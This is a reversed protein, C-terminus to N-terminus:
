CVSLRVSPRVSLCVSLRVSMLRWLMIRGKPRIFVTCIYLSPKIHKEYATDNMKMRHPEYVFLTWSIHLRNEYSRCTGINQSFLRVICLDLQFITCVLPSQSTRLSNSYRKYPKFYKIWINDVQLM